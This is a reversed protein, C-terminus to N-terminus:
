KGIKALFSRKQGASLDNYAKLLKAVPDAKNHSAKPKPADAKPFCVQLVRYMAQEAASNRQTFTIGRQGQKISTGPYKAVAWAMAYPQAEARSAIGASLLKDAFSASSDDALDFTPKVKVLVSPNIGLLKITNVIASWFFFGPSQGPM